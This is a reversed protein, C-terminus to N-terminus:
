LFHHFLLWTEDPAVSFPTLSCSVDGVVDVVLVVEVVILDVVVVLVVVVVVIVLLVVAM